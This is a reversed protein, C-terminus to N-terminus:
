WREWGQAEKSDSDTWIWCRVSWCCSWVSKQSGQSQWLIAYLVLALPVCAKDLIVNMGMNKDQAM